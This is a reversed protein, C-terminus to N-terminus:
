QYLRKNSFLSLNQDYLKHKEDMPTSRTTCNDMEVKALLADINHKQQLLYGSETTEVNICLCKSILCLDNIEFKEHLQQMITDSLSNDQAIVIVDDVYLGFVTTGLPEYKFYVCPDQRIQRLECELPFNDILKNWLRGSQKLGYLSKMMLYVTGEDPYGYPPKVHIPRNIPARLYANPVDGHRVKCGWQAGLTILFRASAMELVPSYTESFEVGYRQTFEREVLRAKFKDLEGLLNYKKSSGDQQCLRPESHPFLKRGHGM